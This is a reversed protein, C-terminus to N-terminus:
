RKSDKGVPDPGTKRSFLTRVGSGQPGLPSAFSTTDPHCESIETQSFEGKTGDSEVLLMVSLVPTARPSYVIRASPALYAVDIYTKLSFYVESKEEFLSSFVLIHPGDKLVLVAV